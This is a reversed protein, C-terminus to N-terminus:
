GDLLVEVERSRHAVSPILTRECGHVSGPDSALDATITLPLLM